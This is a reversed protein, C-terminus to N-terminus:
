SSRPRRHLDKLRQRILEGTVPEVFASVVSAILESRKTMPLHPEWFLANLGSALRTGPQMRRGPTQPSADAAEEDALRALEAALRDFTPALSNCWLPGHLMTRAFESVDELKKALRLEKRALQERERRTLKKAFNRAGLFHEIVLPYLMPLRIQDIAESLLYVAEVANGDLCDSFEARLRDREEEPVDPLDGDFSAQLAEREQHRRFENWEKDNM